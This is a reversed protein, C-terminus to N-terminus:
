CSRLAAALGLRTAKGRAPDGQSTEESSLGMVLVLEILLLPVTLLGTSM